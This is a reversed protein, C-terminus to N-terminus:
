IHARLSISPIKWIHLWLRHIHSIHLRRHIHSWATHGCTIRPLAADLAIADDIHDRTVRRTLGVFLTLHAGTHRNVHPCTRWRARLCLDAIVAGTLGHDTIRGTISIAQARSITTLVWAAGLLSVGTIPRGGILAVEPAQGVRHGIARATIGLARLGTLSISARATLVALRRDRGVGLDLDADLRLTLLICVTVIAYLLAGADLDIIAVRITRGRAADHRTAGTIRAIRRQAALLAAGAGRRADAALEAIRPSAWALAAGTIAAIDKRRALPDADIVRIGRPHARIIRARRGIVVARIPRDTQAAHRIVKTILVTADVGIAVAGVARPQRDRARATIRVKICIRTLQPDALRATHGICLTPIRRRSFTNTAQTTALARGRRHRM